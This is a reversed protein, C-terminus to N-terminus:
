KWLLWGKKFVKGWDVRFTKSVKKIGRDPTTRLRDKLIDEAYVGPRRHIM